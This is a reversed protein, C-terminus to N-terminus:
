GIIGSWCIIGSRACRQVMYVSKANGKFSENQEIELMNEGEEM